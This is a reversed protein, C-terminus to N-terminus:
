KNGEVDAAAAATSFVKKQGVCLFLKGDTKEAAAAAAPLYRNVPRTKERM